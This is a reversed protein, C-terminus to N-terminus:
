KVLEGKFAKQILAQFLNDSNGIIDKTLQEKLNLLIKEFKLQLIIPPTPIKFKNIDGVNFHQQIQGKQNSAIYNKGADSNLFFALYYPSIVEKKPTVILM